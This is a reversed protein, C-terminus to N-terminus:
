FSGGNMEASMAAFTVFFVFVFYLVMGVVQVALLIKGWTNWANMTDVYEQRSTFRRSQWAIENGKILVYIAAPWFLLSLVGWMVNGNVFAFIGYPICGGFNMNAAEPPLPYGAGMGSSNQNADYGGYSPPYSPQGQPPAQHPPPTPAQQPPPAPPAQGPPPARFGEPADMPQQPAEALLKGCSVCFQGHDDNQAGCHGCYM